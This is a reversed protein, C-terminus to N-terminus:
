GLFHSFFSLFLHWRAGQWPQGLLPPMTASASAATQLLLCTFGPRASVPASGSNLHRVFLTVVHNDQGLNNVVNLHYSRADTRRVEQIVLTALYCDSRDPHASLTEALFRGEPQGGAELRESGWEWTARNPPPVSCVEMRLHVDHGLVAEEEGLLTHHVVVPVGRVVLPTPTSQVVRHTGGIHNAVECIYDGRDEYSTDQILLSHGRGRELIKTSPLIQLWRYAPLPNGEAICDLVTQEHVGVRGGGVIRLIEPAYLVNVSVPKGQSSGVQNEARCTYNGTNRRSVPKFELTKLELSAADLGDRTWSVAVPVNEPTSCSMNLFGRGEELVQSAEVTVEVTPKSLLRTTRNRFGEPFARHSAKCTLHQGFDVHGFAHKLVSLSRWRQGGREPTNTQRSGSLRQNGLFWQLDPAPNSQRSECQVTTLRGDFHVVSTDAIGELGEGTQLIAISTPPVRVVVRAPRSALADQSRFNDSTVQCVWDGDDFGFSAGIIKLSCNGSRPRWASLYKGEQIGIPKRDKLWRCEGTINKVSCSLLVDRGTDVETYSPEELFTQLARCGLLINLLVFWAISTM